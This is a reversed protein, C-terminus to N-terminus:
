MQLCYFPYLWQLTQYSISFFMKVHFDTLRLKGICKLRGHQVMHKYGQRCLCKYGGETNVCLGRGHGCPESECENNDPRRSLLTLFLIIDACQHINCVSLLPDYLESSVTSENWSTNTM